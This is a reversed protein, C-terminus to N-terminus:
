ADKKVEKEGVNEKEALKAALAASGGIYGLLGASINGALDLYGVWVSLVLTSGCFLIVLADLWTCPMKIAGKERIAVNYLISLM